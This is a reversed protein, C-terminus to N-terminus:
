NKSTVIILQRKLCLFIYLLQMIRTCVQINAKKLEECRKLEKKLGALVDLSNGVHTNRFQDRHQLSEDLVNWMNEVKDRMNQVECKIEECQNKLSNYYEELRKMNIDTVLFITDDDSVVTKEFDLMPKIKFEEIIELIKKKAHLFQETRRFKESDLDALHQELELIDASSPLPSEAFIKPEWGM